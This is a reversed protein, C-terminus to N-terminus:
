RMLTKTQTPNMKAFREVSAISGSPWSAPAPPATTEESEERMENGSPIRTPWHKSPVMYACMPANAIEACRRM